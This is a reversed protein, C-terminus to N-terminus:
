DLEFLIVKKTPRFYWYSIAGSVTAQGLGLMFAACWVFWVIRYIKYYIVYPTFFTVPTFLTGALSITQNGLDSVVPGGKELGHVALYAFVIVVLGGLGIIVVANFLPFLILTPISLFAQSTERIAESAIKISGRYAIIYILLILTVVGMTIALTLLITQYYMQISTPIQFGVQALGLSTKQSLLFFYILVGTAGGCLLLTVIFTIYIM